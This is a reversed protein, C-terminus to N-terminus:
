DHELAEEDLLGQEALEQCDICFRAWPVAELRAGGIQKGCNACVGYAGNEMRRLASEVLLLTTRENDSLSFMLERNYANNARDVLDDSEEDTADKGAQLDQQYLKMIQNRQDLLRRRLVERDLDSGTVKISDAV